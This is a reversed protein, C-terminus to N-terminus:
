IFKKYGKKTIVGEKIFREEFKCIQSKGGQMYISYQSEFFEFLETFDNFTEILEKVKVDNRARAPKDRERALKARLLNRQNRLYEYLLTSMVFGREQKVMKNGIV